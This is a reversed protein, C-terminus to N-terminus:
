VHGAAQSRSSFKFLMWASLLIGNKRESEEAHMVSFRFPYSVALRCEIERSLVLTSPRYILQIKCPLRVRLSLLIKSWSAKQQAESNNQDTEIESSRNLFHKWNRQSICIEARYVCFGPPCLHFACGQAYEFYLLFFSMGKDREHWCVHNICDEPIITSSLLAM